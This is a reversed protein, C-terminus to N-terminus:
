LNHGYPVVDKYEPSAAVMTLAVGRPTVSECESRTLIESVISDMRKEIHDLVDQAHVPGKHGYLGDMSISGGAGSVFDPIVHIGRKYLIHEADRNVALNAGIVIAKTPIKKAIEPTVANEIAAPIFVDCELDFIKDRNALEWCNSFGSKPLLTGQSNEILREIKFCKGKPTVICSEVDAIGVINVGAKHLSLATACGLSGFGQIAVKAQSIPINMHRLTALCSMAVGHGARRRALTMGDIKEQLVDNYRHFFEEEPMDQAHCIAYKIAPIDLERTIENLEGMKTNLDPGMSYRTMVFPKIARIFRKIAERKGPSAPDYDIGSKAGDVAINGIRQKYTMARALRQLTNLTLGKQVRFGGAALRHATSDIVLYGKFGELPDTYTVILESSNQESM